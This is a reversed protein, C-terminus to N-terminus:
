IKTKVEDPKSLNDLKQQWDKDLLLPKLRLIEELAKAPIHKLFFCKLKFEIKAKWEAVQFLRLTFYIKGWSIQFSQKLSLKVKPIALSYPLLDIQPKLYLLIMKIQEPTLSQRYRGIRSDTIPNNLMAHSTITRKSDTLLTPGNHFSLLADSHPVELFDCIIRLVKKPQQVMDEYTITITAHPPTTQEHLLHMLGRKVLIGFRLLSANTIQSEQAGAEVLSVCIDLPNRLIVIYKAEPFLRHLSRLYFTNDPTKEGFQKANKIQLYHHRIRGLWTHFDIPYNLEETGLKAVSQSIPDNFILSNNYLHRLILGAQVKNSIQRQIGARWLIKGIALEPSVALEPHQDLMRQLLTTGSRHVGLIFFDIPM